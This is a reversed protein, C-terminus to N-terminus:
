FFYNYKSFIKLGCLKSINIIHSQREEIQHSQESVSSCIVVWNLIKSQQQVDKKLKFGFISQIRAKFTKITLSFIVYTSCFTLIGLVVFIDLWKILYVNFNCKRQIVSCCLQVDCHIFVIIFQKKRVFNISRNNSINLSSM